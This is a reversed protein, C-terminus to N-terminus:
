LVSKNNPLRNFNSNHTIMFGDPTMGKRARSILVHMKKAENYADTGKYSNATAHGNNILKQVYATLLKHATNIDKLSCTYYDLKKLDQITM